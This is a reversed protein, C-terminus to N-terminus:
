EVVSPGDGAPELPATITLTPNPLDEVHVAPREDERIPGNDLAAPYEAPNSETVTHRPPAAVPADANAEGPRQTPALDLREAAPAADNTPAKALRLPESSESNAAPATAAAIRKNALRQSLPSTRLAKEIAEQLRGPASTAESASRADFPFPDVENLIGDGDIDDDCLDGIGDRDRDLQATNPVDPCCDLANPIGDGDLDMATPLIEAPTPVILIAPTPLPKLPAPTAQPRLATTEPRSSVAPVPPSAKPTTRLADESRDSSRNRHNNYHREPRTSEGSSARTRASGDTAVPAPAAAPLEEGDRPTTGNRPTDFEASLAAPAAALLAFLLPAIPTRRM